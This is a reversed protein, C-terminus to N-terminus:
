RTVLFRRVIDDNGARVRLWYVGAGLPRGEADITRLRAPHGGGDASGGSRIRRGTVDFIKFLSVISGKRSRYM